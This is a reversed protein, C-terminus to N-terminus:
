NWFIIFSIFLIIPIFITSVIAGISISRRRNWFYFICAIQFLLIAWALIFGIFHDVLVCLYLPISLGFLGLLFDESKEKKSMYIKQDYFNWFSGTEAPTPGSIPRGFVIERAEEIITEDIGQERLHRVMDPESM